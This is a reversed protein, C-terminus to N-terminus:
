TLSLFCLYSLDSIQDESEKHMGLPSMEWM